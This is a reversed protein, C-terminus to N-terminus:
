CTSRTKCACYHCAQCKCKSGPMVELQHYRHRYKEEKYGRPIYKVEEDVIQFELIVMDTSDPGLFYIQWLSQFNSHMATGYHRSLLSEKNDGYRQSIFSTVYNIRPEKFPFLHTIVLYKKCGLLFISLHRSFHEGCELKIVENLIQIWTFPVSWCSEMDVTWFDQHM